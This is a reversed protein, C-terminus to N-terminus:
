TLNLYKERQLHPGRGNQKRVSSNVGGYHTATHLICPDRCWVNTNDKIIIRPHSDREPLDASVEWDDCGDLLCTRQNSSKVAGGYWSKAGRETTFIVANAEPHTSQGQAMSIVVPLKQLVRDHSLIYRGQPLLAWSMSRPRDAMEHRVLPIKKRKGNYGTQAPPCSFCQDSSFASGLTRWIGSTMGHSLNRCPMIEFPGHGQQLQPVAKQVRRSDGSLRIENIVM